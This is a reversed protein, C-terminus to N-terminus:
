PIVTIADLRILRAAAKTEGAAAGAGEILTQVTREAAQLSVDTETGAPAPGSVLALLMPFDGAAFGLTSFDVTWNLIAPQRQNLELPNTRYASAAAFQWGSGALWATSDQARIRAAYSAPLQPVAGAANSAAVLLVAILRTANVAIHGRNHVQLFVDNPGADAIMVETGLDWDEGILEAFATPTVPIGLVPYSTTAAWTRPGVVGDIMDRTGDWDTLGFRSQIDRAAQRSGVDFTGVPDAGITFGRRQVHAQWRTVRPGTDRVPARFRINPAVFAPPAQAATGTRRVKIDPSMTWNVTRAPLYPHAAARAAPLHRGSDAGNMRVYVDPSAGPGGALDFEWIGRGHLSARLRRTPGHAKLDLVTAEPLGNSWLRWNWTFPAAASREGQFVGVDTGVYLHRPNVPDVVMANVPADFPTAVGAITMGPGFTTPRWTGPAAADYWFVHDNGTSSGGLGCYLDETAPNVVALSTIRRVAPLGTVPLQTAPDTWVDTTHNANRTTRDYRFVLQRTSVHFRNQAQWVVDSIMDAAGNLRSITAQAATPTINRPLVRWHAGWDYSVWIRNTPYLLTTDPEIAPSTTLRAYMLSDEGTSLTPGAAANMGSLAGDAFSYLEESNNQTIVRLPNHPDIAVGGGDATRVVRWQAAGDGRLSGNDQSGTVVIADSVPHHDFYTPQTIGLTDNVPLFSGNAGTLSRFVGGDCGVWVEGPILAGLNNRTFAVAHCDGHIGAGRWTPSSDPNGGSTYGFQHNGGVVTLASRYLAAESEAPNLPGPNDNFVVAGGIWVTDDTGPEVTLALDYFGQDGVTQAQPPLQQVRVFQAGNYRWLRGLEDFRYVVHNATNSVALAIRGPNTTSAPTIPIPTWTVGNDTSLYVGSPRTPAAAPGGRAAAFITKNGAATSGTILVDSIQRNGPLLTGGGRPILTWETNPGAGAPRVILGATTAAWVITPDDPDQFLRSVSQGRLALPAEAHWTRAGPAGISVRIGTGNFAPGSGLPPPALEDPEGTGVFITDLNETAGFQVLLANCALANGTALNVFNPSMVFDDIPTWVDHIIAGVTTRDYRWVGGDPAAAYAREGNPGIEIARV